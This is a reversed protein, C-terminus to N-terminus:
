RRSIADIIQDGREERGERIVDAITLNGLDLTGIRRLRELLEEPSIEDTVQKEIERAVLAEVPLGEKLARASLADHVEDPVSIALTKAM